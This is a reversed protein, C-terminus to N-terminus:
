YSNGGHRSRISSHSQAVCNGTRTQHENTFLENPYSSKLGERRDVPGTVREPRSGASESRGWGSQCCGPLKFVLMESAWATPQAGVRQM